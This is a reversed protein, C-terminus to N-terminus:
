IFISGSIYSCSTLFNFNILYHENLDWTFGNRVAVVGESIEQELDRHSKSLPMDM